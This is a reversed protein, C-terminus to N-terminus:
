EGYVNNNKHKQYENRNSASYDGPGLAAPIIYFFCLILKCSVGSTLVSIYTHMFMYYWDSDKPKQVKDM